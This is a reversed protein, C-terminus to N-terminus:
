KQTGPTSGTAFSWPVNHGSRAEHAFKNSLGRRTRESISAQIRVHPILVEAQAADDETGGILKLTAVFADRSAQDSSIWTDAYAEWLEQAIAKCEDCVTPHNMEANSQLRDRKIV